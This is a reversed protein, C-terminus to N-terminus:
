PRRPWPRGARACGSLAPPFSRGQRRRRASYSRARLTAGVVVRADQRARRAQGIFPELVVPLDGLAVDARDREGGERRPAAFQQPVDPGARPRDRDFPEDGVRGIARDRDLRAGVAGGPDRAVRKRRPVGESDTTAPFAGCASAAQGRRVGNEEAAACGGRAHDIPDDVRESGAAPEDDVRHRELRLRGRDLPAGAPAAIERLDGHRMGLRDPAEEAPAGRHRDDLPAPRLWSITELRGCLGRASGGGAARRSVPTRGSARQPPPNPHPTEGVKGMTRKAISSRFPM